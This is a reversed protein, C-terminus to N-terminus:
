FSENPRDALCSSKRLLAAGASNEWNTGLTQAARKSRRIRNGRADRGYRRSEEDFQHLEFIARHRRREAALSHVLWVGRLALVRVSRAIACLVDRVFASVALSREVRIQRELEFYPLQRIRNDFKLM